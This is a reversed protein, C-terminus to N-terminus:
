PAPRMESLMPVSDSQSTPEHTVSAIQRKKRVTQNILYTAMDMKFRVGHFIFIRSCVEARNQRAGQKPEQRDSKNEAQDDMGHRGNCRIFSIREISRHKRNRLRCIRGSRGQIGAIGLSRRTKFHFGWRTDRIHDDNENIIDAKARATGKTTRNVHRGKLTKRCLPQFVVAKMGRGKARGSANGQESSVIMMRVIRTGDHLQRGCKWTVSANPRTMDRRKGGDQTVISEASGRESFVMLSRRPLNRNRSGIVAPRRARTEVFKVAEDTTLGILPRWRNKITHSTDLRWRRGTIMERAVHGVFRNLPHARLFRHCRLFRKVHVESRSCRVGRM